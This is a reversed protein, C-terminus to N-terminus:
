TVRRADDRDLRGPRPRHRDTPGGGFTGGGRHELLLGRIRRRASQAGPSIMLLSPVDGSRAPVPDGDRPRTRLRPTMIPRPATQAKRPSGPRRSIARTTRTPAPTTHDTPAAIAGPVDPAAARARPPGAGQAVRSAPAARCPTRLQFVAGEPDQRDGGRRGNGGPHHGAHHDDTTRPGRQRPAVRM